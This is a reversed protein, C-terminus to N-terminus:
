VLLEFYILAAGKHDARGVETFGCKRYFAGAGAEADWADLCLSGAQCKKVIKVAAAICARGIGARQRAPDVAMGILYLPRTGPTLAKRDIAWPKKKTLTLTAVIRRRERAIYVTDQRVHFCVRRATIASSWRGYGFRRTLEAAAANQLAAIAPADQEGAVTLTKRM